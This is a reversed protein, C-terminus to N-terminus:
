ACLIKNIIIKNSVIVKDDTYYESDKPIICEAVCIKTIALFCNFAYDIADSKYKFSYFGEEIYAKYRCNILQLPYQLTNLTNITYKYNRIPSIFTGDEQLYGVKYTTIDKDTIFKENTILILCM